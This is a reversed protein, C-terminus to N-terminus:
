CGTLRERFSEINQWNPFGNKVGSSYASVANICNPTVGLTGPNVKCAYIKAEFKEFDVNLWQQVSLIEEDPVKEDTENCGFLFVSSAVLTGVFKVTKMTFGKLKHILVMVRLWMFYM